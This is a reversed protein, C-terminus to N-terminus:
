KKQFALVGHHGPEAGRQSVKDINCSSARFVSNSNTAAAALARFSSWYRLLVATPPSPATPQLINRM